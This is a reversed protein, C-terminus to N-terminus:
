RRRNSASRRRGKSASRKRKKPSKSRSKKRKKSTRRKTHIPRFEILLKQIRPSPALEIAARTGMRAGARLLLDVIDYQNGVAAAMLATLGRNNKANISAGYIILTGVINKHGNFAAKMLATNGEYDRANPSGGRELWNQVVRLHGHLAANLFDDKTLSPTVAGMSLPPASPRFTIDKMFSPQIGLQREIEKIAEPTFKGRSTPEVFAVSHRHKYMNRVTNKNYCKIHNRDKKYRGEDCYFVMPDSFPEYSVPDETTPCQGMGVVQRAEGEKATDCYWNSM